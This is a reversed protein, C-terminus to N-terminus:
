AERERAAILEDVVTAAVEAASGPREVDSSWAWGELYADSDALGDRMAIRDIEQQFGDPMALTVRGAQDQARVQAPIGRWSLVRYRAM